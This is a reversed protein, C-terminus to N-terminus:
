ITSARLSSSSCSPPVVQTWDRGCRDVFRRGRLRPQARTRRVTLTQERTKSLDSIERRLQALSQLRFIADDLRHGIDTRRFPMEGVGRPKKFCENQFFPDPAVARFNRLVSVEKIRIVIGRTVHVAAIQASQDRPRRNFFRMAITGRDIEVDVIEKGFGVFFKEGLDFWEEREANMVLLLM